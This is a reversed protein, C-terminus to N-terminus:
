ALFAIKPDHTQPAMEARLAEEKELAMVARYLPDDGGDEPPLAAELQQIFKAATSAAFRQTSGEQLSM